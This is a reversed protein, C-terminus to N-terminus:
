LRHLTIQHFRELGLLQAAGQHPSAGLAIAIELWGKDTFRMLATSKPVKQYDSVLGSITVRSSGRYAVQGEPHLRLVDERRLNTIVNGYSDIYQVIGSLMKGDVSLTPTHLRKVELSATGTYNPLQGNAIQAIAPMLAHRVAWHTPNPNVLMGGLLPASGDLWSVVGNNQVLFHHNRFAVHYWPHEEGRREGVLVVHISGEPLQDWHEQLVFGAETADFPAIAHSVEVLNWGPTASRLLQGAVAAYGDRQAYDTILGIVPQPGEM